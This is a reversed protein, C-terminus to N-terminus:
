GLFNWSFWTTLNAVAGGLSITKTGGSVQFAITCTDNAAALWILSGNIRFGSTGKIISPNIEEFYVTTGTLVFAANVDTHAVGIGVMGLACNLIYTGAVPFTLTNSAFNNGRDFQESGWVVSYVTGDGTVNSLTGTPFALGSTKTTNAINGAATSFSPVGGSSTILQASNATTIESVVSAASSYLIQNATTTAPLTVTTALINTGNARLIRGINTATTPYTATSYVPDVSAGGSQLIKGAALPAITTIPSSGQGILIGHNTLTTTGFGGGSASMTGFTPDASAGNSILPIGSVASPAISTIANAPAGILIDHLTTTAATFANIGDFKQLGASKINLANSPPM